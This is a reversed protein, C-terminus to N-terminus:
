GVTGLRRGDAMDGAGLIDGGPLTEAGADAALEVIEERSDEGTRRAGRTLLLLRFDAVRAARDRFLLVLGLGLRPAALLPVPTVTM